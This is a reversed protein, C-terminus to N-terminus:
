TVKMEALDSETITFSADAGRSQFVGGLEDMVARKAAEDILLYYILWYTAIMTNGSSAWLIGILGKGIDSSNNILKDYDKLRIKIFNSLDDRSRKVLSALENAVYKRGKDAKGLVSAPVGAMFLAFCKDFDLFNEFFLGNVSLTDDFLGCMSARFVM